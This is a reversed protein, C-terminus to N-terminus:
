LSGAEGEQDDFEQVLQEATQQDTVLVHIWGGRLAARIAQFKRKGSAIGVTRKVQKLQELSMGIVRDNLPSDVPQGYEDFFRLCVDGVARNARLSNLEEESFVNGSSALLQSPEVTGIGVLALTIDDFAQIAESVFPDAVLIDRTETSGVVGPASLLTAEGHVLRALRQTLQVAHKEASPNGIGGLIQVVHASVSRMLPQMANATALLSESWSSIGIIEGDRITTELYYAAAAGVNRLREDRSSGADTVIAGKLGYQEELAKELEPYCGMPTTVSIRVIHEQLARKLLRSVTAQSLDLQSAIDTQRLNREYYMTAVKTMLRLEETLAM